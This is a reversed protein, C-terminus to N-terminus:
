GYTKELYTFLESFQEAVERYTHAALPNSARIQAISQEQEFITDFVKSFKLPFVPLGEGLTGALVDAINKCDKSDRWDKFYDGKQKLLKTAVVVINDTHERLERITNIGANLCKLENYIPVLVVDSQRVASLISAQSGEAIMGALDFVIDIDDPFEPFIENPKISIISEEDFVQDLVNYPENTGLAYGHDLAINASIPTKGASGKICWVTIKM